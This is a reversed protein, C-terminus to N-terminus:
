GPVDLPVGRASSELATLLAGLVQHATEGDMEPVAARGRCLDVLHRTSAVFGADGRDPLAHYAHVEGERYVEVAPEQRGSSSIRNCRVSGRHATVEVREDCTYYDSRFYTDPALTLDLVGRLGDHHEWVLTAPADLAFGPALETSGIWGFIRRIPGFLWVAVALQHWGHDFVLMGRGDRTQEFQWEWSTPLVDWGGRGTNVIKMAVGVPDGLEGSRVVERLKVLPPYFTYDELIRLQAGAARAAARIRESDELSRAIPKQLQVHFGAEFAHVAVDAHFPTPVLVDVVDADVRLLEDLDTTALADGLEPAWRQLRAEDRDCVAVIDIEDHALYPPLMLEAIQGLGVVAVRVPRDTFPLRTPV